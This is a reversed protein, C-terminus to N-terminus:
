RAGLGRIPGAAHYEELAAQHLQERKEAIDHLRQYHGATRRGHIPPPPPILGSMSLVDQGMRSCTAGAGLWFKCRSFRLRIEKVNTKVTPAYSGLVEMFKGKQPDGVNCAVLKFFRKGKTGALQFRLRPPGRDKSYLPMFMKRVQAFRTLFLAM